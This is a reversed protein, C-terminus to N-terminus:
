NKRKEKEIKYATISLIEYLFCKPIDLNLKKFKEPNLNVLKKFSVTKPYFVLFDKHNYM